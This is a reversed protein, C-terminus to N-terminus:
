QGCCGARPLSGCPWGGGAVTSRQFNKTGLNQFGPVEKWHCTISLDTSLSVACAHLANLIERHQSIGLLALFFVLESISHTHALIHTEKRSIRGPCHSINCHLQCCRELLSISRNLPKGCKCYCCRRGM